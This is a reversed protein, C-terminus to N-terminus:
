ELLVQLICIFNCKKEKKLNKLTVGIIGNDEIENKKKKIVSRWLSGGGGLSHIQNQLLLMKEIHGIRRM